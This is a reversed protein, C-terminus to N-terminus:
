FRKQKFSLFKNEYGSLWNKRKRKVCDFKIDPLDPLKKFEFAEKLGTRRPERSLVVVLLDRENKKVDEPLKIM